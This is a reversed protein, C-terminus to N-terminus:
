RGFKKIKRRYAVEFTRRLSAKQSLAPPEKSSEIQVQAHSELCAYWADREPLTNM